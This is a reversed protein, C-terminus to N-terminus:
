PTGPKCWCALDKGQLVKKALALVDKGDSSGHLWARYLKTAHAQDLADVGVKFPNGFPTSRDVKATNSPM